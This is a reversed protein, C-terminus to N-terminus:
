PIRYLSLVIIKITLSLLLQISNLPDTLYRFLILRAM